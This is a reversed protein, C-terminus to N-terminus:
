NENFLVIAHYIVSLILQLERHFLFWSLPIKLKCCSCFLSVLLSHSFEFLYLCFPPTPILFLKDITKRSCGQLSSFLERSNDGVNVYSIINNCQSWTLNNLILLYRVAWTLPNEKHYCQTIDVLFCLTHGHFISTM